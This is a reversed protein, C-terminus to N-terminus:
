KTSMGYGVPVIANQRMWTLAAVWRNRDIREKSPNWNTLVEDVIQDDNPHVGDILFDNWAGYLTAVIECRETDAHSLLRLLKDIVGKQVIDFNKDVYKRYGDVKALRSYVTRGGKAKKGKFWKNRSLQGEISYLAVADYPGAAARQFESHLPLQACHESLYLLKEFKVRGTTPEDCINDLIYASLVLRKFVAARKAAANMAQPKEATAVVHQVAVSETMAVTVQGNMLLPLLFDRLETLEKNQFKNRTILRYYPTVATNFKKLVEFQPIVIDFDKLDTDNIAQQTAGTAIQNKKSEFYGANLYNWVYYISDTTCQLGAFGTSLLYDSVLIEAGDNVLLHKLTDKMKAFWVSDMMPQMNARVPRSEYDVTISHDTIESGDVESTSLYIKEGDFENIGSCILKCLSNNPVKAASWGKPIERKLQANYEMAGGSSHYPKSNADPFDSQTFWYDYLLKATKELEANIANNSDLKRDITHIISVIFEREKEDALRIIIDKLIDTNLYPQGSGSSENVLRSRLAPQRLYYM